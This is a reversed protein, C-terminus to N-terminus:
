HYYFGLCPCLDCGSGCGGGGPGDSIGPLNELIRRADDLYIELGSWDFAFAIYDGNDFTHTWENGDHLLFKHGLYHGQMRICELASGYTNKFAYIEENNLSYRLEQIYMGYIPQYVSYHVSGYIGDSFIFEMDYSANDYVVSIYGNDVQWNNEEDLTCKFILDKEGDDHMDFIYFTLSNM